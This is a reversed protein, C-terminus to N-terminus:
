AAVQEVLAASLARQIDQWRTLRSRLDTCLHRLEEVRTVICAQEAHCQRRLRRM